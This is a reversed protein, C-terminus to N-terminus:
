CNPDLAPDCEEKLEEMKDPFEVVLQEKQLNPFKKILLALDRERMDRVTSKIEVRSGGAGYFGFVAGVIIGAAIDGGTRKRWEAQIDINGLYTVKGAFVSFPMSYHGSLANNVVTQRFEHRGAPLEVAVLRGIETQYSGKPFTWGSDECWKGWDLLDQESMRLRILRADEGGLQIGARVVCDGSYTLSFVAVGNPSKDELVYDNPINQISCGILAIPFIVILILKNM